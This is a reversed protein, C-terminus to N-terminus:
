GGSASFWVPRGNESRLVMWRLGDNLTTAFVIPPATMNTGIPRIPTGIPAFANVDVTDGLQVQLAQRRMFWDPALAILFDGHDTHIRLRETVGNRGDNFTDIGTIVGTIHKSSEATSPEEATVADWYPRGTARRLVLVQKGKVIREALIVVHGDVSVKSGTVRVDDHLKVRTPQNTVYWAPGVEITYTNQSKDARVLLIVGDGMGKMPPAVEVGAVTGKVTIMSDADYLRNYPSDAYFGGNVAQAAALIVTTGLLILALIFKM